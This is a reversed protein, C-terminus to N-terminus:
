SEEDKLNLFGQYSMLLRQSFCASSLWHFPSSEELDMINGLEEAKGDKQPSFCVLSFAFSLIPNERFCAAGKQM